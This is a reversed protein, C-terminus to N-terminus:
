GVMRLSSMKHSKKSSNSYSSTKETQSVMHDALRKIDSFKSRKRAKAMISITNSGFAFSNDKFLTDADSCSLKYTTLSRHTSIFISYEKKM